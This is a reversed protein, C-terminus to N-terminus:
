ATVWARGTVMSCDLQARNRQALGHALEAMFEAAERLQDVDAISAGTVVLSQSLPNVGARHDEAANAVRHLTDVLSLIPTGMTM